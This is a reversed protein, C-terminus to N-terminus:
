NRRIPRSIDIYREAIRKTNIMAAAQVPEITAQHVISSEVMKGRRTSHVSDGSYMDMIKLHASFRGWIASSTMGKQLPRVIYYTIPQQAEEYVTVALQLWTTFCMLDGSIIVTCYGGKRNKTVDPYIHLQSNPQLVLQPVIFPIAPSNTPTRINELWLEGM